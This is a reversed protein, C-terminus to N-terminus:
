GEILELNYRAAGQSGPPTDKATKAQRLAKKAREKENRCYHSCGLNNCVGAPANEDFVGLLLLNARKYKGQRILGATDDGKVLVGDVLLLDSCKPPPVNPGDPPEPAAPPPPYLVLEEEDERSPEVDQGLRDSDIGLESAMERVEM